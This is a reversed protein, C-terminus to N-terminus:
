AGGVRTMPGFVRKVNEPAEPATTSPTQRMRGDSCLTWVDGDSDRWRDGPKGPFEARAADAQRRESLWRFALEEVGCVAEEARQRDDSVVRGSLRVACLAAVCWSRVVVAFAVIPLPGPGYGDFTHEEIYNRIEKAFREYNAAQEEVAM